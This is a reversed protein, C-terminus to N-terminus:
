IRKQFFDQLILWKRGLSSLHNAVQREFLIQKSELSARTGGENNLLVAIAIHGPSCPARM